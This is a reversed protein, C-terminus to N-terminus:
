HPTAQLDLELVRQLEHEIVYIRGTKPNMALDLPRHINAVVTTVRAAWGLQEDNYLRILLLDHGVVRKGLYNGFRAVLFRGAYQEGFRDDLYIIGSPSSHPDFTAIPRDVYGASPGTNMVPRTLTLDKPPTPTHKYPKEGGDAFEYPFGYHKGQEVINLEEPKDADPGNETGVLHGAPDWTFGWTNRLGRAFIERTPKDLKPDLRWMCATNFKEGGTAFPPGPGDEGGDTRAGVNLYILGDPGQAIGNAAHNYPGIGFPFSETYWATPRAVEGHQVPPTRYITVENTKTEADVPKNSVIYLRDDRDFCLGMAFQGGYDPGTFLVRTSGTALNVQQLDGKHHLVYLFEGARDCALRTPMKGTACLERLTAGAPSNPLTRDTPSDALAPAALAALILVHPLRALTM